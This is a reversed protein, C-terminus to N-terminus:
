THIYISVNYICMCMFVYIYVEDTSKNLCMSIQFKFKLIIGEYTCSFILFYNSFEFFCINYLFVWHIINDISNSEFFSFEVRFFYKNEDPYSCAMFTVSSVFHYTFYVKTFM